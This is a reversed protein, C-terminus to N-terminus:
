PRKTKAPKPPQAKAIKKLKAEFAKEDEDCGLERATKIFAKGQHGILKAPKKETHKM